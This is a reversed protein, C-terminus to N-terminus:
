RAAPKEQHKSAAPDPLRYRGDLFNLNSAVAYVTAPSEPRWEPKIGRKLCEKYLATFFLEILDQKASHEGALTQRFFYQYVEVPLKCFVRPNADAASKLQPNAQSTM